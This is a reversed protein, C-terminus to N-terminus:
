IEKHWPVFYNIYSNSNNLINNNFSLICKWTHFDESMSLKLVQYVYIPVDEGAVSVVMRVQQPLESILYQAFKQLQDRRLRSLYESLPARLCVMHPFHIRFLCLAIVHSCWTVTQDCTCNCSTIHGRDFTVAVNFTGKSQCIGHPQHVTASLHFGALSFSTSCYREFNIVEQRLLRFIFIPYQKDMQYVM